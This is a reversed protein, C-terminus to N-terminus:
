RRDTHEHIVEHYIRSYAAMMDKALFLKEFRQCAAAGMRKCDNDNNMLTQMAQRLALPDAPPVVLGTEEHVNIFTTGTSIDCCIMPKSMMAAELLSIGFAESRLHSPFVFVKSLTLLAMKDEETVQGVFKVHKLNLAASLNKLYAEEEGTGAIVVPMDTGACAKLLFELGKYYRLVGVFLFFGRGVNSEWSKLIEQSPKPYTAPDISNPIVKVKNKFLQLNRSTDLYSQSTAVICHMQGLFWHSLPRYLRELFSQRVIDSHYTVIAPTKPRMIFHMLDASPWPFHYHIIDAKKSLEKFKWLARFSFGTSRVSFNRKCIYVDAVGWQFNDDKDGLALVTGGFHSTLAHIVRPMGSYDEPYYTKYVHLIKM